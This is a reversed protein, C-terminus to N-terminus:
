AKCLRTKIWAVGGSISDFREVNVAICNNVLLGVGSFKKNEKEKYYFLHKNEKVQFQNEGNSHTGSIVRVCLTFNTVESWM